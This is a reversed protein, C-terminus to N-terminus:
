DKKWEIGGEFIIIAENSLEMSLLKFVEYSREIFTNSEYSDYEYLFNSLLKIMNDSIPLYNLEPYMTYKRIAIDNICKIASQYEFNYALLSLNNEDAYKLLYDDIPMNDVSLIEKDILEYNKDGDAYLIEKGDVIKKLIDYYIKYM